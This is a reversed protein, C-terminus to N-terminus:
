KRSQEKAEKYIEPHYEKMYRVFLVKAALKIAGAALCAALAGKFAPRFDIKVDVILERENIAKTLAQSILEQMENEPM